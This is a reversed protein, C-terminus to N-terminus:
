QITIRDSRPKVRSEGSYIHGKTGPHLIVMFICRQNDRRSHKWLYKVSFFPLDVGFTPLITAHVPSGSQIFLISLALMGGVTVASM